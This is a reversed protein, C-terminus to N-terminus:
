IDKIKFLSAFMLCLEARFRSGTACYLLFNTANSTYMTMLVLTFMLRQAPCDDCHFLDLHGLFYVNVPLNSVLFVTNVVVLTIAVSIDRRAITVAHKNKEPHMSGHQLFKGTQTPISVATDVSCSTATHKEEDNGLHKVHRRNVRQRSRIVLCIIGTSCSLLIASPVILFKTNDIWYWVEVFFVTQQLIICKSIVTINRTENIEQRDGFFLLRPLNSCMAVICIVIMTVRAATKTCFIKVKHPWAVAILREITVAVLTWVSIDPAFSTTWVHFRCLHENLFRINYHLVGEIFQRSLGNYLVLVDIVALYQLFVSTATRKFAARQLVVVSLINFVTGLIMLLMSFYIKLFNDISKLLIDEATFPHVGDEGISTEGSINNVVLIYFTYMDSDTSIMNKNKYKFDSM